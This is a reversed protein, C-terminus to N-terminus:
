YVAEVRVTGDVGCLRIVEGAPDFDKWKKGNVMVRKIPKAEPHRFRVLVEEPAARDPMEITAAIRGHDTDSVIEYALNGFYTPANRVSIRKDQELWARPTGRAIWLLRGEEMVLLNRFNEMFWGATGNDPTECPAFAGLHWHEWLRGDAGVMTAYANMWFRLFNPVDDQRLFINANHSIKPLSVYSMWFWADDAALSKARRQDGLAQVASESATMETMVDLTDRVAPGNADLAGFPEALPLAGVYSDCESDNYQPAGLELGTMGQAHPMRPIYTHYMGDRGPRVPSLAADREAVRRIDERFAGAEAQYKKGSEGDFEALADGFRQLGQLAFANDSYYWHWDCAPLAYDGLMCPPMLGATFLNERGPTNMMYLTRQRIIWDAAARLRPLNKEFWGRDGTLFYREAMAFLLRGTSAHTGDHSYGMDHRLSAAWELSGSGDTFDGDSKIGPSKLFHDYVEDAQTHLGLMDQVRVVRGVEHALGGWLHRGKLQTYGANWAATWGPDPVQVEMAPADVTPFPKLETGEPCTWMRVERMLDEWSATERHERTMQRISKLKKAALAKVFERASQGTGAKALFVGHEPILIPGKDLDSIKFTFGGTKTWVTIRSDLGPRADPAYLVPLLVGRRGKGAKQSHWGKGDTIQTGTDGALAAAPGTLAVRTELKGDFEAKEMGPQFGWEIEVDMRKWHGLRPSTVHIEPIASTAPCPSSECFVAVMETAADVHRSYAYDMQLGPEIKYTWTRGNASIEPNSLVRDVTWGFWGWSTPYVRVEVAEPAPIPGADAPWSLEVRCDAVGGTWLLGTLLAGKPKPLLPKLLDPQDYYLSKLDQGPLADFATRYVTDLRELRRPIFYAEPEEQVARDARWAHTWSSIDVPQGAMQDLAVVNVVDALAKAGCLVNAVMIMAFVTMKVTRKDM